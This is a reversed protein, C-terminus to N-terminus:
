RETAGKDRLLREIEVDGNVNAWSLASQGAKNKLNLVSVDHIKAILLKAVDRHRHQIALILATDGAKNAIKTEAEKPLFLEIMRLHGAMAAALMPTDGANNAAQLSAGANLLLEAASTHGKRAALILPTDGDRNKTELNAGTELLGRLKKIDGRQAADLLATQAVLFPSAVLIVTPLVALWRARSTMVGENEFRGSM